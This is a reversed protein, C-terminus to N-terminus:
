YLDKQKRVSTMTSNKFIAKVQDLQSARIAKIYDGKTAEEDKYKEVHPLANHHPHNWVNVNPIYYTDRTSETISKGTSSVILVIENILPYYKQNSFFPKAVNMDKSKMGKEPHEMQPNNILKSVEIYMITGLADWSGLGEARPHSLDLIIDKVKVAIFQGAGGGTAIGKDFQNTAM